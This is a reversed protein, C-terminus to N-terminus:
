PESGATEDGTTERRIQFGPEKKARYMQRDARDILEDASDYIEPGTQAIGISFTVGSHRESFDAIFRRCLSEARELDADVAVVCFEDGGYRCPIDELRCTAALVEGVDTLVADGARHGQTDNVQKFGDLDFYILSLPRGRRRAHALDRGLLERLAGSNYLGTLPDRRALDELQKTRSAVTRELDSVYDELQRRATEVQGVLSGIYTDMVLATDFALLRDLAMLVRQQRAADTVLLELLRENLLERLLRMGALYFRPEVGIRRHAEGIHLRHEVYAADYRGSFLDLIYARMAPKLRGLTEPRAILAAVEPVGLQHRYFSEVVDDIFPTILERCTTLTEVMAADVGLLERQREIEDTIPSGSRPDRRQEAESM